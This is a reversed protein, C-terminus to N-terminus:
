IEKAKIRRLIDHKFAKPGGFFRKECPSLGMDSQLKVELLKLTCVLDAVQFLKYKKPEVAQAFEVKLSRRENFFGHLLNTIRKQGCDYYVKITEFDGFESWAFGVDIYLIPFLWGTRELHGIWWCIHKIDQQEHKLVCSHRSDSGTVRPPSCGGCWSSGAKFAVDSHIIAYRPECHLFLNQLRLELTFGPPAVDGNVAVGVRFRVFALFWVM